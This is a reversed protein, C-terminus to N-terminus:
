EGRQPWWQSANNRTACPKGLTFARDKISTRRCCRQRRARRPPMANPIGVQIPPPPPQNTTNSAHPPMHLARRGHQCPPASSGRAGSTKLQCAQQPQSRPSPQASANGGEPKLYRLGQCLLILRHILRPGWASHGPDTTANTGHRSSEASAQDSCPSRRRPTHPRLTIPKHHLLKLQRKPKCRTAPKQRSVVNTVVARNV